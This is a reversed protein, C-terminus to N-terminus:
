TARLAVRNSSTGRIVESPEKYRRTELPEGTMSDFRHLVVTQSDAGCLKSRCRVEVVGEDLIAHLKHSCRLERM